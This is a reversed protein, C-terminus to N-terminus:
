EEEDWVSGSSITENEKGGLTIGGETYSESKVQLVQNTGALLNGEFMVTTVDTNPKIYRKMEIIRLKNINM